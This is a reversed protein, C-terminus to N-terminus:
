FSSTGIRDGARVGGGSVLFVFCLVRHGSVKLSAMRVRMDLHRQAEAESRLPFLQFSTLSKQVSCLELWLWFRAKVTKCTSYGSPLPKATVLKVIRARSLEYCKPGPGSDTFIRM